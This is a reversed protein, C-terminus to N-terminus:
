GPRITLAAALAAPHVSSGSWISLPSGTLPQRIKLTSGRLAGVIVSAYLRGATWTLPLRVDNGALVNVTPSTPQRWSADPDGRLIPASPLVEHPSDSVSESSCRNTSWGSASPTRWETGSRAPSRSFTLRALRG